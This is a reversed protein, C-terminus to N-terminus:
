IKDDKLYQLSNTLCVKTLRFDLSSNVAHHLEIYDTTFSTSSALNIKPLDLWLFLLPM